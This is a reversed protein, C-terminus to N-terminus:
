KVIKFIQNVLKIRGKIYDCLKPYIYKFDESQFYEIWYNKYASGGFERGYPSNPSIHIGYLPRFTTNFDIKIGKLKVINFLLIEDIINYDKLIPVPYYKNYEFFHLGTLRKSKLKKRVINSYCSKRKIMDDILYIYFNDVLIIVDIDTIYVYKNKILPQSIFRVSGTHVKKNNYFTGTQNKIFFNYKILIRSYNFKKRLYDVASEENETLKNVNTGIEFDLKKLKDVRLLSSLFIPIYHSYFEDCCTYILIREEMKFLIKQINGMEFEFVLFSLFHILILKIFKDM